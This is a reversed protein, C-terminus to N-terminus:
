PRWLEYVRVNHRILFARLDRAREERIDVRTELRDISYPDVISLSCDVAIVEANTTWVLRAGGDWHAGQTIGPYSWSQCIPQVLASPASLDETVRIPQDVTCGAALVCALLAGKAIWRLGRQPIYPEDPAQREQAHLRNGECWSCRGHNNCSRAVRQSEGDRLPRGTKYHRRKTRSM